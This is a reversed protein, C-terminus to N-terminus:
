DARSWDARPEKARAARPRAGSYGPAPGPAVGQHVLRDVAAGDRHLRRGFRPARGGGRGHGRSDARRPRRRVRHRADSGQSEITFRVDSQADSVPGQVYGCVKTQEFMMTDAQDLRGERHARGGRERVQLPVQRGDRDRAADQGGRDRASPSSARASRRPCRATMPSRSSARRSDDGEPAIRFVATSGESTLSDAVVAGSVQVKHGEYDGTLVEDISLSSAAGGSSAMAAVVLIAIIVIGGVVMLRRKAKKNM